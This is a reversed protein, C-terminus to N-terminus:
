VPDYYLLSNGNYQTTIYSPSGMTSTTIYSPIGMTSPRLIPPNPKTQNPKISSKRRKLPIEAMDRSPLPLYGIESIWTALRPISGRVEQEALWSSLWEAVAAGIYSPIAMTSPRLIPPFEWQVPDYYLLSKGNNYKDYYLLFNDNYQTTIYSSITM